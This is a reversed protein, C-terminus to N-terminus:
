CHKSPHHEVHNAAPIQLPLRLRECGASINVRNGKKAWEDYGTPAKHKGDMGVSGFMATGGPTSPGISTWRSRVAKSPSELRKAMGGSRLVIKEVAAPAIKVDEVECVDHVLQAIVEPPLLQFELDFLRNKLPEMLGDTDTSCFVYYEIDSADEIVKLFLTQMDRSLKQCEDFTFIKKDSGVFSFPGFYKKAIDRLHDIGKIEAVNFERFGHQLFKLYDEQM